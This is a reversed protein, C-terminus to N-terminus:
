NILFFEVIILTFKNREYRLCQSIRDEGVVGSLVLYGEEFFFDFDKKSVYNNNNDNSTNISNHLPINKNDYIDYIDDINNRNKNNRNKNNCNNNSGNYNMNSNVALDGKMRNAGKRGYDGNEYISDCSGSIL